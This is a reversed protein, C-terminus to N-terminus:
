KSPVGQNAEPITLDSIDLWLRPDNVPATSPLTPNDFYFITRKKANLKQLAENFFPDNLLLQDFSGDEIAHWLGAEIIEALEPKHPTIFLYAPMPYVIMIHEEVMLPLNSQQEVEVWPEMLGRLFLDFRDAILMKYLNDVDASETVQFGAAKLIASDTWGQGQGIRLKLLEEKTKINAYKGKHAKPILAVRHGLLGRFIPIRIAILTKEYPESTAAWFIDSEGNELLKKERAHSCDNGLTNISVTAPHYSFAHAIVKDIYQNGVNDSQGCYHTVVYHSTETKETGATASLILCLPLASLMVKLPTRRHLRYFIYKALYLCM